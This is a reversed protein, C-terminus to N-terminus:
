GGPRGTAGAPHVPGLRRGLAPDGAHARVGTDSARRTAANWSPVSRIYAPKDSVDAENYAPSRYPPDGALAGQYKPAPISPKHPAHPAWYLFLPRGAPAPHIFSVANRGLLDTQYTSRGFQEVTGGNSVTPGNYHDTIIGFWHNWGPPVYTGAHKYGNFYKGVLGTYYGERQLVTAITTRDKFYKFGGHYKPTNSWVGNTGSYQGSLITARSPCCLSNSVFGRTFNVGRDILQSKVTPMHQLEDYRQDDTLILVINPKASSIAAPTTPRTAVFVVGGIIALLVM